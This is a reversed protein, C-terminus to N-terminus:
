LLMTFFLKRHDFNMEVYKNRIKNKIELFTPRNDEKEEWCHKMLQACEEDVTEDIKPRLLFLQSYQHNEFRLLESEEPPYRVIKVCDGRQAGEPSFNEMGFSKPPNKVAEIVDMLEMENDLYFPGEHVIVEHMIIGFSYIDGKQTGEPPPNEM